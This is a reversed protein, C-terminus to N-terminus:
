VTIELVTISSALRPTFNNDADGATRNVYVAAAANARIQVAYTTASTTSPSDLYMLNVSAFDVDGAYTAGQPRSGASNGVFNTANGGSLRLLPQSSGSTAMTFVSALILIKSSTNSPTITVTLGTIDAYTTSSMTFTDTKATSLVQAVKGGGAPAAWKM